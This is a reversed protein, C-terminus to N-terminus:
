IFGYLKGTGICYTQLKVSIYSHLYFSAEPDEGAGTLPYLVYDFFLLFRVLRSTVAM